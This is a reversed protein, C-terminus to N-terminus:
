PLGCMGRSSSTTNILDFNSEPM